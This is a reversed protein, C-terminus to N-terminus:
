PLLLQADGPRVDRPLPVTAGPAPPPSAAPRPTLAPTPPAATPSPLTPGPSSQSSQETAGGFATILAAVLQERQQRNLQRLIATDRQVPNTRLTDAGPYVEPVIRENVGIYDALTFKWDLRSLASRGRVHTHYRILRSVLTNNAAVQRTELSIYQNERPLDPLQQYVQEAVSNVNLRQATAPQLQIHIGLLLLLGLVGFLSREFARRFRQIGMSLVQVCQETLPRRADASVLAPVQVPRCGWARVPLLVPM